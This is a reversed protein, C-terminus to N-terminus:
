SRKGDQRRESTPRARYEIIRTSSDPQVQGLASGVSHKSGDCIVVFHYDKLNDFRPYALVTDSSLTQKILDFSKQQEPGWKFEIDPRLLDRLPFTLEAHRPVLRKVYNISGLFSRVQKVNKPTPWTKIIQARAGSIRVGTEDFQYGLYQVRPRCVQSKEM